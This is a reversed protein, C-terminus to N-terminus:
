KPKYVQTYGSGLHIKLQDKSLSYTVSLTETKNTFRYTATDGSLKVFKLTYKYTGGNYGTGSAPAKLTVKGKSTIQITIKSISQKYGDPWEQHVGKWSGSVTKVADFTKLTVTKSKVSVGYKDTVVCYVKRGDTSSTMKLSYTATKASSVKKFKSSGKKAYYLPM